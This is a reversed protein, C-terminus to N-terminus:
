IIKNAQLWEAAVKEAPLGTIDVKGNLDLITEQTLKESIAGFLTDYADKNANYVDSKMSVAPNYVPFFAKDDDLMTLNLTKIQPDTSTVYTFNCVGQSLATLSIAQEAPAIASRPLSFDYTKELGPLGDERTSFEASACLKAAEPDATALAAYESITSVGTRAFADPSAGLAYTNNFPARAFWSFGNAADTAQVDDFLKVPDVVPETNQLITLWATGTYEYYADIEGSELAARVVKTGTLGTQDTVTAGAAQLAQVMISGLVLQETYEKSGVSITVSSLDVSAAVTGEGAAAATSGGSGCASLM